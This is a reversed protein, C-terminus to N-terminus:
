DRSKNAYDIIKDSISDFNELTLKNLLEKVKGRVGEILISNINTKYIWREENRKKESGYRLKEKKEGEGKIEQLKPKDSVKINPDMLSFFTNLLGKYLEKPLIKKYPLVKDIFEKSTLNHFKIS